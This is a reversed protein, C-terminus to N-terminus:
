IKTYPWLKIKYDSKKSYLDNFQPTYNKRKRKEKLLQDQKM